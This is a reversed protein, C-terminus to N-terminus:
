SRSNQTLKIWLAITKLAPIKYVLWAGNPREGMWIAGWFMHSIGKAGDEEEIMSKQWKM